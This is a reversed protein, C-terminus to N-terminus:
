VEIGIEAFAMADEFEEDYVDCVRKFFLMPLIYTKDDSADILGTIIHAAKWLHRELDNLSPKGKQDNM